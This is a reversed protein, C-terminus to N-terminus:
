FLFVKSVKEKFQLTSRACNPITNRSSTSLIPLIGPLFCRRFEKPSRTWCPINFNISPVSTFTDPFRPSVIDTSVVFIRNTADPAYMSKSRIILSRSLLFTQVLFINKILDKCFFIDILKKNYLM